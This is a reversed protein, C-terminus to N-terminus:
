KCVRVWGQVRFEWSWMQPVATPKSKAQCRFACATALHHDYCIFSSCTWTIADHHHAKKIRHICMHTYTYISIHAWADRMTMAFCYQCRKGDFWCLDAIPLLTSSHHLVDDMVAGVAFDRGRTLLTVAVCCHTLFVLLKCDCDCNCDPSLDASLIAKSEGHHYIEGAGVLQLEQTPCRITEQCDLFLDFALACQTSTYKSETWTWLSLGMWVLCERM